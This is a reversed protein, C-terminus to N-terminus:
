KKEVKKAAGSGRDFGILLRPFVCTMNL